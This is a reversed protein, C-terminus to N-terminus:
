KQAHKELENIAKSLNGKPRMRRDPLEQDHAKHLIEISLDELRCITFIKKSALQVALYEQEMQGKTPVFLAKKGHEIMDMISSYGSRCIVLDARALYDSLEVPGIRDRIESFGAIPLELEASIGSGRVLVANQQDEKAMLSIVKREFFSRNPEPGSLIFLYSIDKPRDEEKDIASLCGIYRARQDGLQSIRGCISDEGEFDPIWLLTFKRVERLIVKKLVKSEVGPYVSTNWQHNVFVSMVDKYCLGSRGDSIVIDFTNPALNEVFRQDRNRQDFLQKLLKFQNLVPHRLYSFDVTKAVIHNCNPFESVLYNLAEGDSYLTVTHGRELLESIIQHSRSAHGLGWNLVGYLINM